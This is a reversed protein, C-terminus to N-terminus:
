CFMREGTDAETFHEKELRGKGKVGMNEKIFSREHTQGLFVGDLM